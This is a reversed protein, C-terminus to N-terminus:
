VDDYDVEIEPTTPHAQCTLILGEAIESDTLIQNKRMEAKGKKIRAICTSCIGGQCSYPPDLGEELAADLISKAQPMKFTEVDGDLTITVTTNGDHQQILLGKEATSFLEIHIQKENIGNQKLTAAVEDVMTEPGCLYFAEYDTEAYKSKLFFNVISRDIRGFRANEELKRSFVLEVSFRKPFKEKIEMIKDHFMTETKSQNGYILLFTSEPYDELSHQILSLIPTIGSGAAFAAYNKIDKTLVFKGTPQMVELKDGVKLKENAFQSFIGKEVKKVGVTLIGSNPSSCISYARRIEQDKHFYKITLYQGAEFKYKPRLEEPVEFSISVSSPTERKVESVVLTHFESM